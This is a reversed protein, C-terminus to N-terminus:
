TLLKYIILENSVLFSLTVKIILHHRLMSFVIISLLYHSQEPILQQATQKQQNKIFNQLQGNNNKDNCKIVWNQPLYDGTIPSKINTTDTIQIKKYKTLLYIDNGVSVKM